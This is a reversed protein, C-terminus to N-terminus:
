GSRLAALAYILRQVLYAQTVVDEPDAQGIRDSKYDVVLTRGDRERAIVDFVGRILVGGLIFGFRQETRASLASGLRACLPSAIFRAVLASIEELEEGALKRPAM